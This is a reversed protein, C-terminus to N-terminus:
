GETTPKANAKAAEKIKAKADMKKFIVLPLLWTGLATIIWIILTAVIWTSIGSIALGDPFFSAILLAVFASVLGIGGLIPSAYKRAINFIFPSLILQALTFVVVAIIFGSAHINFDELLLSCVFLAVASLVLSVGANILMRIM